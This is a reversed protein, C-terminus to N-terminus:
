MDLYYQIIYSHGRFISIYELLLLHLTSNPILAESLYGHDTANQKYRFRFSLVEIRINKSPM